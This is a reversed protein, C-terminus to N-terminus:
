QNEEMAGEPMTAIANREAKVAEVLKAAELNIRILLYCAGLTLLKSDGM